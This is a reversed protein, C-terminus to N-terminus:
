WFVLISHSDCLPSEHRILDGFNEWLTELDVWCFYNRGVFHPVVEMTMRAVVGLCGTHGGSVHAVTLPGAADTTGDSNGSRDFRVITGDAKVFDIDRVHAAITQTNIGSGHTSTALAGAITVPLPSPVQKLAAPPSQESLFHCIDSFTAGGQFTVSGLQNGIAQSPPTYELVKSFRILNLLTGGSVECVPSFSHGRGVPRTLHSSRVAEQLEELSSPLVM